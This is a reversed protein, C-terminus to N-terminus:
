RDARGVNWEPYELLPGEPTTPHKYLSLTHINSNSSDTNGTFTEHNSNQRNILTFNTYSKKGAIIVQFLLKYLIISKKLVKRM